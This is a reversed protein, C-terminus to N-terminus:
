KYTVSEEEEEVEGEGGVVGDDGVGAERVYKKWRKKIRRFKLVIFPDEDVEPFEM